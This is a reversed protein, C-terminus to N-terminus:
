SRYVASRSMAAYFAAREPAPANIAPMQPVVFAIFLVAGTLYLVAAVARQRLETSRLPVVRPGAYMGHSCARNGHGGPDDVGGRDNANSTACPVSRVVVRLTARPHM